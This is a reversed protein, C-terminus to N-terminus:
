FVSRIRQALVIMLGSLMVSNMSLPENVYYSLPVPVFVFIFVVLTMVAILRRPPDLPTIDDLPVAYSRGLLILLILMLLLSAETLLVLMGLALMVPLYLLRAKSGVLSYLVHGGDLQGVPLLNLGTVFLGIWGAWALQNVFVDEQGNPLFEGFTVVKALAYLISNGEVMGQSPIPGVTSTALGILLIPIAFILGALPGAAGVELLVKRNRMPERLQIAAGMTGFLGIPFPIFYPLTVALNRRKAAFYHGLEHAGLILLVAAAYPIGRWLHPLPNAAFSEALQSEVHPDLTIAESLGQLTGVYLVSMLTLIFLVLNPLWSRPAVEFRGAIIHILHKDNEQRFVPLLDFPKLQQDLHEYAAESDSLLRGQFSAILHSDPSLVAIYGEENDSSPLKEAEVAIVLGVLERIQDIRSDETPPTVPTGPRDSLVSAPENLM